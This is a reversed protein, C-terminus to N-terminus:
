DAFRPTPVAVRSRKSSCHLVALPPRSGATRGQKRKNSESTTSKYRRCALKPPHPPGCLNDCPAQQSTAAREKREERQLRDLKAEAQWPRAPVVFFSCACIIGMLALANMM